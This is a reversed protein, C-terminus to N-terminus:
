FWIEGCDVYEDESKPEAKYEIQVSNDFLSKIDKTDITINDTGIEDFEFLTNQNLRTLFFGNKVGQYGSNWFKVSYGGYYSDYIEFSNRSGEDSEYAPINALEIAEIDCILYGDDTSIPAPEQFVFIEKEVSNGTSDTVLSLKYESAKLDNLYPDYVSKYTDGLNNLLGKSIVKTIGEEYGKKIASAIESDEMQEVEGLTKFSCYQSPCYYMTGNPELVFFIEVRSDKGYGDALYWITEGTNIYENLSYENKEVMMNENTEINTNSSIDSNNDSTFDTGTEKSGCGVLLLLLGLTIFILKKIHKM